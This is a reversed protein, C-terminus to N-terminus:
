VKVDIENNMGKLKKEECKVTFNEGDELTDPLDRNLTEPLTWALIGALTTLGGILLFPLRSWVTSLIVLFSAAIAGLAATTSCAGLGANRVSTPFIEGSVLYATGYSATIAMKGVMALTILLWHIDRWEVILLVLIHAPIEVLGSISFNVYNNGALDGTNWSLGFYSIGNVFWIILITLARRRLKPFHRLLHLLSSKTSSPSSSDKVEQMGEAVSTLLKDLHAVEDAPMDSSNDNAVEQLVIAAEAIRGQGMLWRPSEPLLWWYALCFLGPLSLVLQLHRWEHVLYAIIATLLYGFSFFMQMVITAFRRKTPGVMEMGLVCSTIYVGPVTAGLAFRALVFSWFTPAVSASIGACAQLVLASFFVPRRGLRDSLNGFITAGLLGGIVLATNATGRAWEWDCVLQFEFVASSPYHHKDFVWESCPETSNLSNMALRSCRAWTQRAESWSLWAHAEVTEPLVFSANHAHEWPLLCRHEAYAGLFVWALKHMACLMGPICLLLFLRRQYRGFEGVQMLVDDFANGTKRKEETM